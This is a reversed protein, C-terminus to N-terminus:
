LGVGAGVSSAEIHRLKTRVGALVVEAIEAAVRQFTWVIDIRVDGQALLDRDALTDVERDARVCVVEEVVRVKGSGVPVDARAAKALSLARYSRGGAGVPGELPCSNGLAQQLDMAPEGELGVAVVVPFATAGM